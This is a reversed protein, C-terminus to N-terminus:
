DQFIDEVQINMINTNILTITILHNEMLTIHKKNHKIEKAM